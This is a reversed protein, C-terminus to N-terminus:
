LQPGVVLTVGRTHVYKWLVQVLLNGEQVQGLQAYLEIGKRLVLRLVDAHFHLPRELRLIISILSRFESPWFIRECLLSAAFSTISRKAGKRRQSFFLSSQRSAQSLSEKKSFIFFYDRLSRGASPLRM